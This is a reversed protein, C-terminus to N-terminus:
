RIKSKLKDMEKSDTLTVSAGDLDNNSTGGVMNNNNSAGIESGENVETANSRKRRNTVTGKGM